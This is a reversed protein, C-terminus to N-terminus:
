HQRRSREALDEVRDLLAKARTILVDARFDRTSRNGFEAAALALKIEGALGDREATLPVIQSLFWAYTTDTSKISRTALALSNKGLTGLPANLQKYVRALEIFDSDEEDDRPALSDPLARRELKEALVRGDSVYDDKLGLLVLATPRLDTHDSFVRDNRGQHRVGPGVMGFWTRTIDQQVDGHNWAFGNNQVVCFTPDTGCNQPALPLSGTTTQFFYDPNGFMTLSPTRAPSFTVMHLVKMEAPDALFQALQDVQNNKGPLPNVWTLAALDHAFTRTVGDTPKPNGDIYITPADDAHVLFPTQNARQTLLLSDLNASLEGVSRVTTNPYFYTCPTTVGDCSAPTPTGGVFHDNEDATFTFLTNSKDIGEAALRAFFQGWAKDYAALQAVYGAEGPGFAGFGAKNDHTDSIYAYVVPVGAELMTAVYGLTQTATPSFTNPFGPHGFADAIVNGDLDRVPGSSIAPQVNINGYMKSGQACHIAIGLWDTNAQQRIAPNPSNREAQVTLFQQSTTGYVVGVDGPLTEFELNAISFAGFDCGARTFAVWPAPATKGNENVMVPKGDTADVATWYIFSTHSSSPHGNQDFVRYSNAVPVGARDPYVGTLTTIIDNATHSILPTFHNGSVTGNNLMFNLLNPMQELDSPVNPNDRRLHVNDFQIQVVHKINNGLNCTAAQTAGSGASLMMTALLLPAAARILMRPRTM